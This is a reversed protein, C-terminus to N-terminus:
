ELRIGLEVDRKGGSPSFSTKVSVVYYTGTKEPYEQDMVYASYSPEVYPILWGTFSGKYGDFLHQRLKSEAIEKADKKGVSGIKITLKEGGTTGATTQTTKGKADTTEVVIEVKKDQASRYELSSSEINQHMSYKVYGGKHIYAPHIHLVKNITDFWINASTDEQLKKLVDYATADNITFKEYTIGYDCSVKYSGDVQNCLKEAIEKITISTFQENNVTKRFLFLADECEITISGNNSLVEKIYGRFEEQLNDNYGLHVKVEAGRKIEQPLFLPDNYRSGPLTILCNSALNEVSKNIEISHVLKLRYEIGEVTTFDVKFCMKYM